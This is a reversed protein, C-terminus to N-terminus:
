HGDHNQSGYDWTKLSSEGRPVLLNQAPLATNLFPTLITKAASATLHSSDKYLARGDQSLRCRGEACLAQSLDVVFLGSGSKLWVITNPDAEPQPVTPMHPEGSRAALALHLPVDFGPEPLRYLVVVAKGAKRLAETMEAFRDRAAAIAKDAPQGDMLGISEYSTWFSTLIVIRISPTDLVARLLRSNRASCADRDPVSSRGSTLGPVPPCSNRVAAFGRLGEARGWEDLAPMMAAAHSDGWVVFSVPAGDVGLDCSEPGSLSDPADSLCNISRESFDHVGNAYAVVSAPFRGPLGGAVVIAVCALSSVACGALGALAIRRTSISRRSRFPGEVFRWSLIAAVFSALVCLAALGTPLKLDGTAHRALVMIPLHVLYLSYSILGIFVFPRFSLLRTVWGDSPAVDFGVAIIAAAGLVPPLATLGPFSTQENYLVMPALILIAGSLGAVQRRLPRAVFFAVHPEYLALLGGLGLEWFRTPLLFFAATPRWDVAIVSLAFALITALALLRAMWRRGLLRALVLFVPFFLYFQEEVGLSWTHLFPTMEAAPSFYNISKWFYFNSVSFVAALGSRAAEVLAAPLMIIAAALLTLLITTFLAPLIRRARREYFSLLSFEGAAFERAIIGTILYGSIVFFVDVGVYGGSFGRLGAHFLVVPVVAVARLGDIDARYELAGEQAKTRIAKRDTM